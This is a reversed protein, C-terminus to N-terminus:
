PSPRKRGWDFRPIWRPVERTYRAYSEGFNASLTPEEYAVVLVGVAAFWFVIYTAFPGSPVRVWEGFMALAAGLYMPNRVYRYPGQVVLERPADMPAPTGRGHRAFSVICAIVIAAGAAIALLGFFAHVGSVEIPARWAGFWAWPIYVIFTGAFALSWVIARLVLWPSVARIAHPANM